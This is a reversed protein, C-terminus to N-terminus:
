SLALERLMALHFPPADDLCTRLTDVDFARLRTPGHAVGLGSWNGGALLDVVGIVQGAGSSRVVTQGSPSFVLVNGREVLFVAIVPSNPLFVVEGHLLDLTTCRLIASQRLAAVM